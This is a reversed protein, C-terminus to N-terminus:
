LVPAARVATRRRVVERVRGEAGSIIEHMTQRAGEADHDAICRVLLTHRSLSTEAGGQSEVTILNVAELLTMIPDVISMLLVNDMARYIALHFACDEEAFEKPRDLLEGMRRIHGELTAIQESSARQALRGVIEVDLIGRLDMLELYRNIDSEVYLAFSQSISQPSFERVWTGSGQRSDLLGKEELMKVAERIVTRSVGFQEALEREPPLRDGPKLQQTVFLDTLHDVVDNSLKRPSITKYM